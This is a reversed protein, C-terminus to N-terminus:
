RRTPSRTPSAATSRTASGPSCPCRHRPSRGPSRNPTSRRWSTAHARRRPHRRHRRAPAARGAALAGPDGQDGAAVSRSGARTTDALLVQFGFGSRVLEDHFDHWAATGASSVVGLRLPVRSLPRRSNADLSGDAALRRLVQDRQQALDGLTFRPDLDTMKLGLQGNPAYYDLHGFIRVRMGDGLRLRHKHLLPRLRMRANAFFQVKLVAQRGPADDALTFYAHSGRESWGQIEGRVWVGDSFGRRLVGNVADALESVTFTPNAPDDLPEFDFATQTMVVGDQREVGGLERVNDLEDPFLEGDVPLNRQVRLEELQQLPRELARRRTGTLQDFERQVSDFHRKVKDASETYKQWQQGFKGILQLIEDSTREIMFSDFAQRIVGLFAFLTLPSCMVVRQSMAEDLLGPDHEHIFGTLQENPLFLLVYDVSPRDGDRAYERKALEKVRLRVDGLFRKLHTQREAETGVELYRLYSALPFKVDMYLVHGKPLEFTFDPRGSGGDVQTQKRYNVHETFGALRLVDEAMREGWQGRAQPNALAERLMRTSDALTSALEAHSRLSEDVQGFRQASAAGLEAVLTGLRQLEGRLESRVEDLRTDIVDKKAALDAQVSSTVTTAAAGLQERSLVAAQELAARVAADREAGARAQIDLMVEDIAEYLADAAGTARRQGVLYAAAAAAVAAVAALILYMALM